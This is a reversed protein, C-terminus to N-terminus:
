RITQGEKLSLDGPDRYLSAFAPDQWSGGAPGAAAATMGNGGSSAAAMHAATAAVISERQCQKAHDAQARACCSPASTPTSLAV